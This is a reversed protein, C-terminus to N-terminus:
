LYDAENLCKFEFKRDLGYVRIEFIFQETYIKHLTCGYFDFNLVGALEQESKTQRYYKLIKDELVM